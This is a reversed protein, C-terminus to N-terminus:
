PKSIDANIESVALLRGIYIGYLVALAGGM